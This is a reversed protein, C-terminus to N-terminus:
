GGPAGSANADVLLQERCSAPISTSIANCSADNIWPICQGNLAVLDRIGTVNNCSGAVAQNLLDARYADADNGCVLAVRAVLADVLRECASVAPGGTTPAPEAPQPTGEDPVTLAERPACIQATGAAAGSNGRYRSASTVSFGGPNTCQRNAADSQAVCVGRGASGGVDSAEVCFTAARGARDPCFGACDLTCFGYGTAPRHDLFCRGRVGSDTFGCDSDAACLDGVFADPRPEPTPVPDEGPTPQEVPDELVPPPTFSVLEPVCVRDTIRQAGSRGVHREVEMLTMGSLASCNRNRTSAKVTCLGGPDNHGMVTAPVCFTVDYGARDPCFGECAVTCRKPIAGGGSQAELCFATSGSHGFDCVADDTCESGVFARQYPAPLTSGGDDPNSTGGGVGGGSNGGAGFDLGCNGAVPYGALPAALLANRTNTGLDGDVTLHEAAAKNRNYLQQFAKISLARLDTGRAYTFHVADRCGSLRGGNTTDCYWTFGANKLASRVTSNSSENIDIALGSEHMSRGPSAAVGIGCTGEWQKLVYQQVVSRWTSNISIRVGNAAASEFAAAARKSLFPYGAPGFSVNPLGDIRAWEDPALCAMEQAIQMSLRNAPETSCARARILDNVTRLSGNDKYALENDWFEDAIEEGPENALDLEEVDTCGTLGLGLALGAASLRAFLSTIKRM